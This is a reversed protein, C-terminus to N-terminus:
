TRQRRRALAALAVTGALLALLRGPEPLRFGVSEGEFAPDATARSSAAALTSASSTLDGGRVVRLSDGTITESWEAVNGGQDFTGFEYDSGNAEYRRAGNSSDTYAARPTLDGNASACNASNWAATPASCTPPVGADTPYSNFGLPNYFYAAKYWEDETPLVFRAGPNRPGVSAAGTFAYSGDETTTSDQPGNPEGNQRWNAYRMADYWSVWNVPLNARGSISTYTYSGSSGSRAIGGLGSGMNTNYLAHTDTAAVANLFATYEANTTEYKGIGFVSPVAGCPQNGAPGCNRTAPDPDPTGPGTVTVWAFVETMPAANASSALGLYSSIGFSDEITRLLSLHDYPTSVVAGLPVGAGLLLAGTRGGAGGGACTTCLEQGSAAPNGEDFTIILLGNHSRLYAILAPIEQSLWLDASVLGGASGNSCPDDHGDHCTDPTIFVFNELTDNALASALKSYPHVHARCRTDNGVVNAFYIWPNHRDAYDYGPPSQSNGQYLDPSPDTASYPAHFCDDQPIRPDLDAYGAWTVFRADLQDGLHVPGTPPSEATVTQVCNYLSLGLCDSTTSPNAPLGSVMTVYNGLSVHSTAFYQPLFTGQARLANLYHAPSSPGFTASADENELVVVVVHDFYPIGELGPFDSASALRSGANGFVLGAIAVARMLRHPM